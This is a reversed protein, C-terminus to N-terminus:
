RKNELNSLVAQGIMFEEAFKKSTSRLYDYGFKGNELGHYLAPSLDSEFLPSRNVIGLAIAAVTDTDGTFDVSKILLEELSNSQQIATLASKVCDAGEVSVVGKWPTFWDGQVFCSLFKPLDKKSGLEYYFYHSALAVALSSSIGEETNHTISAQLYNKAIVEDISKLIGLPAARMAAGSKTSDPRINELFELPSQTNKLFHYFGGAYGPRPDRKFVELFKAAIKFRTWQPTEILLEFLALSMQTDDTYHGPQTRGGGTVYSSGTNHLDVFCKDKFEFSAGYADAIAIHVLM